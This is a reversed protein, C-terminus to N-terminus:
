PPSWVNGFLIHLRESPCVAGRKDDGAKAVDKSTSATDNGQESFLQKLAAGHSHCVWIELAKEHGDKFRHSQGQLCEDYALLSIKTSFMPRETLIYFNVSFSMRRALRLRPVADFDNVGTQTGPFFQKFLQKIRVLLGLGCLMGQDVPRRAVPLRQLAPFRKQILHLDQNVLPPNRIKQPFQFLSNM